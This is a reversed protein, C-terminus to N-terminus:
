RLLLLPVSSDRIMRSTNSGVFFDRVRSHGYAGMVNLGIGNEERFAKLADVVNGQILHGTVDHGSQSLTALAGALSKQNASNDAGVMVIHGPMSKLVATNSIGLIARDATHSGDYAIMFREPAAFTGVAVLIPTQIARVLSELHAGLKHSHLEHDEGLRGLVFLRTQAQCAELAELLEGHRQHLLVDDIGAAQARQQSAELMHKGLAMAVQSRQEDLETLEDLLESASGPGLSGSRDTVPSVTKEIVHLLQLKDGLTKSAWVATDVVSDSMDSGDICATIINKEGSTTM